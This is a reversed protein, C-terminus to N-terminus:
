LRAMHARHCKCLSGWMCSILYWSEKNLLLLTVARTSMMHDLAVVMAHNRHWEGSLLVSHTGSINLYKLHSWVSSGPYIDQGRVWEIPDIFGEVRTPIAPHEFIVQGWVQPGPFCPCLWTRVAGLFKLCCEQTYYSSSTLKLSVTSQAKNKGMDCSVFPMNLGVKSMLDSIAPIVTVAAIRFCYLKSRLSYNVCHLTWGAYCYLCWLVLDENKLTMACVCTCMCERICAWSCVHVHAVRM